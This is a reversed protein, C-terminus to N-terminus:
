EAWIKGCRQGCTVVQAVDRRPASWKGGSSVSREVDGVYVEADDTDRPTLLATIHLENTGLIAAPHQTLVLAM